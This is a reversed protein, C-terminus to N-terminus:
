LIWSFEKSDIFKMFEYIRKCEYSVLVQELVSERLYIVNDRTSAFYVFGSDQMHTRVKKSTLAETVVVLLEPYKKFDISCLVPEDWGEIDISLYQIGEGLFIDDFTVVPVIVSHMDDGQAGSINQFHNAYWDDFTAVNNKTRFLKLEGKKEGIGVAHYKDNPRVMRINREHSPDAEVLIGAKSIDRKYFLFTNSDQIPSRVGVEAYRPPDPQLTRFIADVILDEGWASYSESDNTFFVGKILASWYDGLHLKSIIVNMFGMTFLQQRIDRYSNSCIVILTGKCYLNLLENPSYVYLDDIMKGHKEIDNDIWGVLDYHYAIQVRWLKGEYGAGWILAQEKM